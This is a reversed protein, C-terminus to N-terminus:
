IMRNNIHTEEAVKVAVHHPRAPAAAVKRPPPPPVPVAASVSAIPAAAEATDKAAAFTQAQEHTPLAQDLDNMPLVQKPVTPRMATFFKKTVAEVRQPNALYVWEARLVHIKEQETEVSANIRRLQLELERTRDSTHYLALSAAISLGFWFLLNFTRIMS